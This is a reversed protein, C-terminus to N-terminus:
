CQTDSQKISFFFEGVIGIECIELNSTQTKISHIFTLYRCVAHFNITTPLDTGNYLVTGTNWVNSNNSAFVIHPGDKTTTELIIFILNFLYVHM